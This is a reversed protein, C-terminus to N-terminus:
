FVIAKRMKSSESGRFSRKHHRYAVRTWWSLAARGEQHDCAGTFTGVVSACMGWRRLPLHVRRACGGNGGPERHGRSVALGVSDRTGGAGESPHM